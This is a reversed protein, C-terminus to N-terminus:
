VVCITMDLIYRKIENETFLIRRGNRIFSIKGSDKLRHLTSESCCLYKATQEFTYLNDLTNM